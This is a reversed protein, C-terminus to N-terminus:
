LPPEGGLPKPRFHPKALDSWCESCPHKFVSPLADVCDRCFRTKRTPLPKAQTDPGPIEDMAMYGGPTPAPTAASNMFELNMIMKACRAYGMLDDWHDSESPSQAARVLKVVCMVVAQKLARERYQGYNTAGQLLAEKRRNLWADIIEQETAFENLAPGYKAGREANLQETTRAQKIEHAAM